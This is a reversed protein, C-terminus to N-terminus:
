IIYIIIYYIYYICLHKIYCMLYKFDSICCVTLPKFCIFSLCSRLLFSSLFLHFASLSSLSSDQLNYHVISFIDMKFRTTFSAETRNDGKHVCEKHESRRWETFYASSSSVAARGRSLYRYIPISLHPSATYHVMSCKDRGQSCLAFPHPPTTTPTPASFSRM